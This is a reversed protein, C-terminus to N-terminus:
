TQQCVDVSLSMNPRSSSLSFEPVPDNNLMSKLELIARELQVDKGHYTQYPDNDVVVDPTVGTMEVGEGWGWKDSFVGWQPAAAIGGDVLHNSSSGWIGGGWTRTGVLKGIGLESIGRSAGEGNSATKEDLLVVIKGRFAFQQGWDIDGNRKQVGRGGWYSWAKRQLFGEIWSDINGGANHRVDLIFADKDYDPFFGRAFADEGDRDMAQIHAYGVTFGASSALEKAKQRTRWEWANCLLDSTRDATLPVVLLSEPIVDTATINNVQKWLPFRIVELRASQGSLGRLHMNIDTGQLVSEGNIGVIVDGVNLGRQGSLRLAQDSLPSYVAVDDLLNFDPDPEPIEEVMYGKWEPVRRLRAGLFAPGAPPADPTNYDGGYVFAHLACLEAIMQGLVDDLEERKACRQVLPKYRAHIENWDIGHMNEDYFYDRLLRWADSNWLSFVFNL